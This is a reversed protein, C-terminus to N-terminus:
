GHGRDAEAEDIEEQAHVARQWEAMSRGHAREAREEMEAARTERGLKREAAAHIKQFEVVQEHLVAAREHMLKARRHADIARERAQRAKEHREDDAM